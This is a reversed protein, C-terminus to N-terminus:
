GSSVQGLALMILDRLFNTCHLICTNMPTLQFSINILEQNAGGCRLCWQRCEETCSFKKHNMDLKFDVLRSGYIGFLASPKKSCRWSTQQQGILEM